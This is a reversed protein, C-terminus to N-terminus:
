VLFLYNLTLLESSGGKGGFIICCDIDYAKMKIKM